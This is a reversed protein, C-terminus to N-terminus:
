RGVDNDEQQAQQIGYQKGVFFGIVFPIVLVFIGITEMRNEQAENPVRRTSIYDEFICSYVNGEPHHEEARLVEIGITEDNVKITFAFQGDKTEFDVHDTFKISVSM